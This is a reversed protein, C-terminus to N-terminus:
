PEGLAQMQVVERHGSFQHHECCCFHMALVMCPVSGVAELRLIIGEVGLRSEAAALGHLFLVSGM